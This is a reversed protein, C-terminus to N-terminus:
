MKEREPQASCCGTTIIKKKMRLTLNPSDIPRAVHQITQKGASRINGLHIGKPQTSDFDFDFDTYRCFMKKLQRQPGAAKVDRAYTIGFDLGNRAPGV